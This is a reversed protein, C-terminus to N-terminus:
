LSQLHGRLNKNLKKQYGGRTMCKCFVYCAYLFRESDGIQEVVYWLDAIQVTPPIDDANSNNASSAVVERVDVGLTGCFINVIESRVACNAALYKM